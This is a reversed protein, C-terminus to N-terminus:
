AAAGPGIGPLSDDEGSTAASEKPHHYITRVPFPIEIGVADFRKKIRRLLERKVTWQQLPVTKVHFKIVVSWDGLEDVGLMEPDDLILPGYRPDQRLEHALELLVAMVRDVDESYAVGVDFTARAWGHTLNSVTTISGNPIFHAVGALDRLVTVRLSIHEVQGSIDGIRVVDNIGYQDELLVMFGSFYDKILNQAGFAVALGIVAAGGMLPVVPIGVEDLLMLAGGGLILLSAAHGFVGVLTHARNERDPHSGRRVGGGAVAQVLRGSFTRALRRLALMGLAILLLRPGHQLLWHLINHLRFPNQLGALREEATEAAHKSAEAERLARSEEARLTDLEEQLEHLRDTTQRVEAQAAQLRRQARQVRDAAAQVEDGPARDAVKKQLEADLVSRAEQEHDAQKRATELLKTTLRINARLAEIREGVSHARAEAKKAEEEKQQTEARAQVVERPQAENAPPTTLRGLGPLLGPRLQPPQSTSAEPPHDPPSAKKGSGAATETGANGSKPQETSSADATNTTPRAAPPDGGMLHRLAVQDRDIKLKLAAAMQELEKREQLALNFRDRAVRWREEVEKLSAERADAEAAKGAARLQRIAERAEELQADLPKFRADARRYESQPDALQANLTQLYKQDAEISRQLRAVREAESAPEDDAQEESAGATGRDPRAASRANRLLGEPSALWLGACALVLVGGAGLAFRRGTLRTGCLDNLFRLWDNM